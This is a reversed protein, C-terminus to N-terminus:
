VLATSMQKYPSSHGAKTIFVQEISRPHCLYSPDDRILVLFIDAHIRGMRTM